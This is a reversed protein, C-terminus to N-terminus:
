TQKKKTKSRTLRLKHEQTIRFVSNHASSKSKRRPSNKHTNSPSKLWIPSWAGNLLQQLRRRVQAATVCQSLLQVTQATSLLETWATLERQVDVFLLETSVESITLKKQSQAVYARIVQIINYLLFCFAAQFVTAKASSGILSDLHFVETVQQFMQEISWRNLYLELLDDAPYKNSDRLDTILILEDKVGPRHLHIRRAPRRRPDGPSGLWGFEETFKRGYRDTGTLSKQQPDVFFATRKKHFRILFHDGDQTCEIIQPLGYYFRDAVHLRKKEVSDRTQRLAEPLLTTEGCEGDESAGMATALKMELQLSVVLRGGLVSGEVSRLVKSRKQVNKITKGDHICVSFKQLSKPVRNLTIDDPYLEQLKRSAEHFFGMSLTIPISSLKRYVSRVTAPLEEAVEARQFSKRGSGQHQMIADATLQVMNAFTLDREYSRGRYKEFVDSLFKEDCVFGFLSLVAEALPLRNAVERVFEAM